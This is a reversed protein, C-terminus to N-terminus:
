TQCEEVEATNAAVAQLEYILQNMTDRVINFTNYAVVQEATQPLTIAYRNVIEAAVQEIDQMVPSAVLAKIRQRAHLVKEDVKPPEVVRFPNNLNRKM